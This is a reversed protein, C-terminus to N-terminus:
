MEGVLCWDEESEDSQEWVLAVDYFSTDENEDGDWIMWKLPEQHFKLKWRIM